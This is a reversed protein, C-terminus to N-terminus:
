VKRLYKRKRSRRGGKMSKTATECEELDKRLANAPQYISPLHQGLGRKLLESRAECENLESTLPQPPLRQANAAALEILRQAERQLNAERQINMAALEQLRTTQSECESLDGELSQLTSAQLARLRAIEENARRSAAAAAMAANHNMRQKNAITSAKRAAEIAAAATAAQAELEKTQAECREQSETLNVQSTRAEAAQAQPTVQPQTPL